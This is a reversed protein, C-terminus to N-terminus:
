NGKFKDLNKAWYDQLFGYKGNDFPMLSKRLPLVGLKWKRENDVRLIQIDDGGGCGNGLINGMLIIQNGKITFLDSNWVKGDCGRRIYSYYYKSNDTIPKAEPYNEYGEVVSFSKSGPMYVYLHSRGSYFKFGVILDLYQDKNVDKLSFKPSGFIEVRDTLHTTFNGKIKKYIVIEFNDDDSEYYEVRFQTGSIEFTSKSEIAQGFAQVTTFCLLLSFARISKM